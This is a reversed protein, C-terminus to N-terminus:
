PSVSVPERVGIVYGSSINANKRIQALAERYTVRPLSASSPLQAVATQDSRRTLPSAQSRVRADDLRGVSDNHRIMIQDILVGVEVAHAESSAWSRTVGLQRAVSAIPTGAVVAEAIMM